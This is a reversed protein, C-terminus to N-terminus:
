GSSSGRISHYRAVPLSLLLQYATLPPAQAAQPPPAETALPQAVQEDAQQSCAALAAAAIVPLAPRVRM